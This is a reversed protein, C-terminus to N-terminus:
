KSARKRRLESLKRNLLDLPVPKGIVEDVNEPMEGTEKILDGFGTVMYVPVEPKLAKTAAALQDGSMGPMARDTIVLDYDLQSFAALADQPNSYNDVTHGGNGLLESIVELLVEEDDVLLIRLSSDADDCEIIDESEKSEGETSPIEMTITTGRGLSSHIDFTGGHRQVIGFVISLGLGTGLKGKTTYFPNMCKARIEETMGVGTDQIEICVRDKADRIRLIVKGTEPIADVANIILNTFVQRLEAENGMICRETEIETEFEVRAGRAEAQNKWRHRTIEKVHSVLDQLNIPALAEPESQSRYFERLRGVVAAGDQAAIQIKKLFSELKKEDRNGAPMNLLLESFGLIPALLNNFDHAIGSAMQGLARLNEQQIIAKQTVKLEGLAEKLELNRHELEAHVEKVETADEFIAAFYHADGEQDRLPCIFAKSWFSEGNKRYLQIETTHSDEDIMAQELEMVAKANTKAGNLCSLSCGSIGSQSYGTLEEFTKNVYCVRYSNGVKMLVAVGEKILEVSVKLLDLAPNVRDLTMNRANVAFLESKADFKASVLLSHVAGDETKVRIICHGNKSLHDPYTFFNEIRPRDEELVLEAFNRGPLKEFNFGLFKTWCANASVFKGSRDHISSLTYSVPFPTAGDKEFVAPVAKLVIRTQEPENSIFTPIRKLNVEFTAGNSKKISFRRFDDPSDLGLMWQFLTVKDDIFNQLQQGKLSNAALGWVAESGQTVEIFKGHGDHLSYVANEGPIALSSFLDWGSQVKPPFEPTRYRGNGNESIPHRLRNGRRAPRSTEQSISNLSSPLSLKNKGDM